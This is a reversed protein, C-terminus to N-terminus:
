KFISYPSLTEMPQVHCHSFVPGLPATIVLNLPTFSVQPHYYPTNAGMYLYQQAHRNNPHTPYPHVSSTSLHGCRQNPPSPIQQHYM